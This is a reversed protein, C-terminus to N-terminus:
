KDDKARRFDAEFRMSQLKDINKKAHFAMTELEVLEHTVCRRNIEGTLTDVLNFMNKRELETM